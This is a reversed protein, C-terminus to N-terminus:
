VASYNQIAVQAADAIVHGAVGMGALVAFHAVKTKGPVIIRHHEPINRDLFQLTAIVQAM